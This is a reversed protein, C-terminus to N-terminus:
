SKEVPHLLLYNDVNILIETLVFIFLLNDGTYKM